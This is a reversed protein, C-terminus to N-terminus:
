ESILSIAGVGSAIKITLTETAQGYADNTYVQEGQEVFGVTEFAGVSVLNSFTVRVGLSAPVRITIQGAGAKVDALASRSFRGSFDLDIRGAGGLVSLTDFNAHGLGTVTVRGTGATLSLSGLPRPNPARFALSLDTSGSTVTLKDLAVGTLDLDAQGAGMDVGLSLPIDRALDIAWANVYDDQRGIPIQNGLGQGVTVSLRGDALTERINPSWEEVNYTFHGRLLAVDDAARVRLDQSLLRLQVSAREADQRAVERTEEVLNIKTLPQVTPIPIMCGTMLLAALVVLAAGCLASPRHHSILHHFM